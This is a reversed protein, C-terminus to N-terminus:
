LAIHYYGGTDDIISLHLKGDTDCNKGLVIGTVSDWGSIQTNNDGAEAASLRDLVYFLDGASDTNTGKSAGTLTYTSLEGDSDGTIEYGTGAAYATLTMTFLAQDNSDYGTFAVATTLSDSLVGHEDPEGRVQWIESGVTTADTCELEFYEDTLLQSLSAPTSLSGTGANQADYTPATATIASGDFSEAAEVMDEALTELIDVLDKSSGTYGLDKRPGEKIYNQVAQSIQSQYGALASRMARTIVLLAKLANNEDDDDKLLAAAESEVTLIATRWTEVQNYLDVHKGINAAHKDYNAGSM